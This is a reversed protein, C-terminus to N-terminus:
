VMCRRKASLCCLESLVAPMKLVLEDGQEGVGTPLLVAIGQEAFMGVPFLGDEGLKGGSLGVALDGGVQVQGLSGDLDV